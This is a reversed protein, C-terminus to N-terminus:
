AVRKDERIEQLRGKGNSEYVVGKHKNNNIDCLDLWRKRFSLEARTFSMPYVEPMIFEDSDVEHWDPSNLFLANKEANRILTDARKVEPPLDYPLGFKAAIVGWFKDEVARYDPLLSKLPYSIDGLYAETADHLLAALANEQSVMHSMLFSHQAVSYPFRAAGVYRNIQALHHAIDVIDIMDPTPNILDVKNGLYTTIYTM